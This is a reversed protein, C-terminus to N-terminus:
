HLSFEFTADIFIWASENSQKRSESFIRVFDSTFRAQMWVVRSKKVTALCSDQVFDIICSFFILGEMFSINATNEYNFQLILNAFFPTSFRM